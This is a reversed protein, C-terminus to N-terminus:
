AELDHVFLMESRGLGAEAFSPPEPCEMTPQCPLVRRPFNSTIEFENPSQDHCFVFYYLYKLSHNRMFRRELRTGEPLKIVVHITNVADASPENPVQDALEVKLHQIEERKRQAQLEKQQKQMEEEDRQRREEMKRKEKEQDAKLSELYAEDQQQRITQNLSRELREARATLLSSENEQTVQRLWLVLERSKVPGELRAVVTMRNERLVIVALFPYCNERLAQSVRYGEATQISCAWFLMNVNLFDIVDQNSLTLRCFEPTDQHEDGHLYVLLFKLERKADNLAQSYTGQYFVPHASGYKAEFHTIFSIVDGAPDTIFRRPDPRILRSVFNFISILTSYLFRFPFTFIYSWGGRFFPRSVTYTRQDIPHTVVQPPNQSPPRFVSPTGEQMNLTDQVAVELDWNHSELLNRCRQTDEMGTLDQFQLLKDTQSSTLQDEDAMESAFTSVFHKVDGFFSFEWLSAAYGHLSTFLRFPTLAIEGIYSKPM